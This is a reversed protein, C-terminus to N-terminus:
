ELITKTIIHRECHDLNKNEIFSPELEATFVNYYSMVSTKNSNEINYFRQHGFKIIDSKYKITNNTEPTSLLNLIHTHTKARNMILM